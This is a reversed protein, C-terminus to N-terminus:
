KEEQHIPLTIIFATGKSEKSEVKINGGYKKILTYVIYLGVGTGKGPAKTTFFPDFIKKQIKPPIGYGNDKIQIEINEEQQSMWLSIKPKKKNEVADISNRLLNLLMQNFEVPLGDFKIPDENKLEFDIQPSAHKVLHFTDDVVEQLNFEYGGEDPDNKPTIKLLNSLIDGIHHTGKEINELLMELEELEEAHDKLQKKSMSEKIEAINNRIPLVSGGVFNLPNNIEHAIGATFHGLSAMKESEILQNQTHKLNKIVKEKERVNRKLSWNLQELESNQSQARFREKDFETKLFNIVLLTGFLVVLYDYQITEYDLPNYQIIDTEFQLMVLAVFVIMILILFINRYRVPLFIISVTGVAVAGIGTPGFIGALSFWFYVLAVNALLVLPVKLPRFWQFFRSLVFFTGATLLIIGEIISMTTVGYLLIGQVMGHLMILMMILCIIEYLYKELTSPEEAFIRKM